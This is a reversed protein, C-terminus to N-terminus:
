TNKPEPKRWIVSAFCVEEGHISNTQRAVMVTCNRYPKFTHFDKSEMLAEISAPKIHDFAGAETEWIRRLLFEMKRENIQYSFRM